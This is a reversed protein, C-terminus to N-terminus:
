VLGLDEPNSRAAMVLGGEKARGDKSGVNGKQCANAVRSM